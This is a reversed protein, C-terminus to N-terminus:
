KKIPYRHTESFEPCIDISREEKTEIYKQIESEIDVEFDDYLVAHIGNKNAWVINRERDDFFITEKPDLNYRSLLIQYIENSPKKCGAECSEVMGSFYRELDHKKLFYPIFDIFIDSLIYLNYKKSLTELQDLLAKNDYLCVRELIQEKTLKEKDAKAEITKFIDISDDIHCAKIEPLNKECFWEVDEICGTYKLFTPFHWFKILVNWFDLIINKM